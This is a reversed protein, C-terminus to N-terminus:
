DMKHVGKTKLINDDALEGEMKQMIKQIISYLFAGWTVMKQIISYLFIHKTIIEYFVFFLAKTSTVFTRKAHNLCEYCV